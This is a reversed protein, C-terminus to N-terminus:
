NYDKARQKINTWAQNPYKIYYGADDFDKHKIDLNVKTYKRGVKVAWVTVDAIIIECTRVSELSVTNMGEDFRGIHYHGYDDSVAGFMGCNYAQGM